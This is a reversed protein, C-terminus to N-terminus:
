APSAVSTGRDSGLVHGLAAPLGPFALRFGRDTLRRAATPVQRPSPSAGPLPLALGPLERCLEADSAREPSSVEWPGEVDGDRIAALVARLLDDLAIWRRPEASRSRRTVGALPRAWGLWGTGPWLVRGPHVDVSRERSGGTRVRCRVVGEADVVVRADAAEAGAEVVAHGGTTLFHRLARGVVGEGGLAVRLPPGPHAAHAALDLRTVTHRFRFLRELKRRLVPEAVPRVLGHLPLAVQLEDELVSAADGEPHMRHHHKWLSFPGAVQVDRFGRGPECDRHEAVWRLRIPAPGVALTM